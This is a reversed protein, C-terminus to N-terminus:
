KSFVNTPSMQWSSSIVKKVHGTGSFGRNAGYSSESIKGYIQTVPIVCYPSMALVDDTNAPNANIKVLQSLCTAANAQVIDGEKVTSVGPGVAVVVLNSATSLQLLNKSTPLQSLLVMNGFPQFTEIYTPAIKYGSADKNSTIEMADRIGSQGRTKSGYNFLNDFTWTLTAIGNSLTFSGPLTNAGTNTSGTLVTARGAQPYRNFTATVPIFCGQCLYSGTVAVNMLVMNSAVYFHANGSQINYVICATGGFTSTSTAKCAQYWATTTTRDYGYQDPLIALSFGILLAFFVAFKM